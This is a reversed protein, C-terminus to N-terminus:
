VAGQPRRSGKTRPKARADLHVALVAHCHMCSYSLCRARSEGEILGMVIEINVHLMRKGCKPCTGQNAM